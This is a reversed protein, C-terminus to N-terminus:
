QEEEENEMRVKEKWGPKTLVLITDASVIRDVYFSCFSNEISTIPGPKVDKIVGASIKAVFTTTDDSGIGMTIEVGEDTEFAYETCEETERVKMPVRNAFLWREARINERPLVVLDDYDTPGTIFSYTVDTLCIGSIVSTEGDHGWKLKHEAPTKERRYDSLYVVNSQNDKSM